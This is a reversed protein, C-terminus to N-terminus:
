ERLTAGLRERLGGTVRTVVTEVDEDTLTRSSDQLILGFAISKRGSEIGKGQYFDFIVMERLLDGALGEVASRLVDAPVEADVVVALDRRISPFRSIEQFRVAEKSGISEYDIEFLFTHPNLSYKGAIAPHIRGLWGVHDDQLQIMAAQGPHLAPHESKSFRADSM